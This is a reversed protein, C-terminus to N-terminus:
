LRKMLQITLDFERRLLDARTGKVEIDELARIIVDRYQPFKRLEFALAMNGMATTGPSGLESMLRHFKEFERYEQDRRQTRVYVVASWALAALPLVVAAWTLWDVASKLGM